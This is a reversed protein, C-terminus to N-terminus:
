QATTPHASTYDPSNANPRCRTCTPSRARAACRMRRRKSSTRSATRRRASSTPARGYGWRGLRVPATASGTTFSSQRHRARMSWLAGLRCTKCVSPLAPQAHGRARAARRRPLWGVCRTRSRGRAEEAAAIFRDALDSRMRTNSVALPGARQNRDHLDHTMRM